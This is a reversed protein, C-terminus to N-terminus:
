FCPPPSPQSACLLLLDTKDDVWIELPVNGNVNEKKWNVTNMDPHVNSCARTWVASLRKAIDSPQVQMRGGLDKRIKDENQCRDVFDQSPLAPRSFSVAM